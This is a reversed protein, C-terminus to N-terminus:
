NSTAIARESQMRERVFQKILSNIMQPWNIWYDNFTEQYDKLRQPTM